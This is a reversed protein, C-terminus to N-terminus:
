EFIYVDDGPEAFFFEERAYRELTDRNERMTKIRRDLEENERELQEIQNRQRRLTFGAQVWNVVNDKKLFLFVAFLVTAVIAYRLFSRQEKKNGDKDRNWIDKTYKAM